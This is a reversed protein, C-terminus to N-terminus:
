IGEAARRQKARVYATALDLHAQMSGAELATARSLSAIAATSNEAGLQARGLTEWASASQPALSVAKQGAEVAPDWQELELNVKSLLEAAHAAVQLRNDPDAEIARDFAYSAEAQKGQGGEAHGLELWLAADDPHRQLVAKLMASAQNRRGSEQLAESLNM